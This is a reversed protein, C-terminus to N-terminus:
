VLVDWSVTTQAAKKSVYAIKSRYDNLKKQFRLAQLQIESHLSAVQALLSKERKNFKSALRKIEVQLGSIGAEQSSIHNKLADLCKHDASERHVLVLGCGQQCIGIPRFDCVEMEHKNLAKRDHVESCGKNRCKVPRHECDAVHASLDALIVVASCGRAVYDCKVQMNLITTRLDLMNHLDGPTLQNCSTCDSLPCKGTQVVPPLLCGSCFKRGCPAILPNDLVGHCLACKREAGIPGMFRDEDFGM